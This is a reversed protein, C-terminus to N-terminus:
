YSELNKRVEKVKEDIKQLSFEIAEKMKLAEKNSQQEEDKFYSKETMMKLSQSTLEIQENIFKLRAELLPRYNAYANLILEKQSQPSADSELLSYPQECNLCVLKKNEKKIEPSFYKGRTLIGKGGRWGCRIFPLDETSMLPDAVTSEESPTNQPEEHYYCKTFDKVHAKAMKKECVQGITRLLYVDIPVPKDMFQPDLFYPVKKGNIEVDIQVLNHSGQYDYYNGNLEGEKNRDMAILTPASAIRISTTKYGAEAMFYSLTEARLACAGGGASYRLNPDKKFQEFMNKLNDLSIAPRLKPYCSQFRKKLCKPYLEIMERYIVAKMESKEKRFENSFYKKSLESSKQCEKFEEDHEEKCSFSSPETNQLFGLINQTSHLLETQDSAILNFSFISVLIFRMM